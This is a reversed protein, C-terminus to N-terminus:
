KQTQKKKKHQSDENTYSKVLSFRFSKSIYDTDFAYALQAFGMTRRELQMETVNESNLLRNSQDLASVLVIGDIKISLRRWSNWSQILVNDYTPKKNWRRSM